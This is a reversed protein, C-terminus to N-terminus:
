YTDMRNITGVVDALKVVKLNFLINYHKVSFEPEIIPRDSDIWITASDVEGPSFTLNNLISCIREKIDLMSETSLSNTYIDMIYTGLRKPSYDSVNRWEVRHIIYPFDTEPPCDDHYLRVSGGMLSKLTNDNTLLNFFHTIVAETRDM